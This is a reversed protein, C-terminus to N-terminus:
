RFLVKVSSWSQSELSAAKDGGAHGQPLHIIGEWTVYGSNMVSTWTGRTHWGAFDGGGRSFNFEGEWIFNTLTARTTGEYTGSMEGYTEEVMSTGHWDGSGTALDVNMSVVHILTGNIPIGNHDEGVLETTSVNGQIHLIGEDDIWEKGPDLFGLTIQTGAVPIEISQAWVVGTVVMM